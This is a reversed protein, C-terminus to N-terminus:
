EDFFRENTVYYKPGRGDIITVLVKLVVVYDSDGSIMSSNAVYIESKKAKLQFTYEKKMNVFIKYLGNNLGNVFKLKDITFDADITLMGSTTHGLDVVLYGDNKFSNMGESVYTKEEVTEVTEVVNQIDKGVIVGNVKLNGDNSVYLLQKNTVLPINENAPDTKTADINVANVVFGANIYGDGTYTETNEDNVVDEIVMGITGLKQSEYYQNTLEFGVNVGYGVQLEKFLNKNTRRKSTISTSQLLTDDLITDFIGSPYDANLAYVMPQALNNNLYTYFIEREDTNFGVFRRDPDITAFNMDNNLARLSIEGHIRTDGNVYVTPIIFKELSLEVSLITVSNGLTPDTEPIDTCYFLSIYYQKTDEFWIVGSDGVKLNKYQGIVSQALSQYMILLNNDSQSYISNTEDTAFTVKKNFLDVLDKMTDTIVTYDIPSTQPYVISSIINATTTYIKYKTITPNGFTTIGNKLFELPQVYQALPFGNILQIPDNKVTSAVIRGVLSQYTNICNFLIEINSNTQYRLNYQQLDVGMSMWYKNGNNEFFKIVAHKKGFIRDNTMTSPTYTDIFIQKFLTNVNNLMQTTQLCSPLSGYTVPLINNYAGLQFPSESSALLWHYVLKQDTNVYNPNFQRISLYYFPNQNLPANTLPDIFTAIADSFTPDTPASLKAMNLNILKFINSVKDIVSLISSMSSDNVDLTTQPQDKGIGVNYASTVKREINSIQFITNKNADSVTLDGGLTVDGTSAIADGVFKQLNVDCGLMYTDTGITFLLCSNYNQGFDWKYNIAFQVNERFGFNILLSNYINYSAQSLFLDSNEAFLNKTDVNSWEPHTENFLIKDYTQNKDYPSLLKNVISKDIKNCYIYNNAGFRNAFNKQIYNTFAICKDQSSSVGEGYIGISSQYFIMSAYNLLRTSSSIQAIIKQFKTSYSPNIMLSEVPLSSILFLLQTQDNSRYFIIRISCLYNYQGDNLIEIFSLIPYKGNITKYNDIEPQMKYIENVITNIKDFSSSDLSPNTQSLFGSLSIVYNIDIPQITYSTFPIFFYTMSQFNSPFLKFIQSRKKEEFTLQLFAQIQESSLGIWSQILKILDTNTQYNVTSFDPINIIKNYFTVIDYSNMQNIKFSDLRDIIGSVSVNKIDLIGNVAYSPQNLGLQTMTVIKSVNETQIVPIGDYTQVSLNGKLVSDENTISPPFFPNIEIIKEKFSTVPTGKLIIISLYYVNGISYVSLLLQNATFFSYSSNLDNLIDYVRKPNDFTSNPVFCNSILQNNWVPYQNSHICKATAYNSITTFTWENDYTSSNWGNVQGNTVTNLINEVLKNYNTLSDNNLYRNLDFGNVVAVYKTPNLLDSIISFLFLRPGNLWPMLKGYHYVNNYTQMKVLKTLDTQITSLNNILLSKYPEPLSGIKKNSFSNQDKWEFYVKGNSAKDSGTPVNMIWFHDTNQLYDTQVLPTIVSNYSKASIIASINHKINYLLKENNQITTSLDNLSSVVEDLTIKNPNSSNSNTSLLMQTSLPQILTNQIQYSM